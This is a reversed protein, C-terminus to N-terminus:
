EEGLALCFERARVTIDPARLLGSIVAVADAGARIVDPASELTIGGIAVLPKTVVQRVQRVLELGVVPEHDPKTSTPFVPGIAVYDVPYHNAERAQQVNHTSLGVIKEPGLIARAKDPPLDDQGVHVGDAAVALAIDVRDNILLTVGLQHAVRVAHQAEEYFQRPPATKDRLQVLRIGGAALRRVQEAHSLGSLERDTIAYVRPFHREM